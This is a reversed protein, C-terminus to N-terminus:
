LLLFFIFCDPLFFFFECCRVYEEFAWARVLCFTGRQPHTESCKKRKKLQFYITIKCLVGWASQGGGRGRAGELEEAGWIWKGEWFLAHRWSVVVLCLVLYLLFLCFDEYQPQILCGLLLFLMGLAPKLTLSMVDRGLVGLYCCLVKNWESYKVKKRM